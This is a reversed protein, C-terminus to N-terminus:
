LEQTRGDLIANLYRRVGEPEFTGYVLVAVAEAEAM